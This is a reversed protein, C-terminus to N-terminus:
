WPAAVSQFFNGFSIQQTIIESADNPGLQTIGCAIRMGQTRTLDFVKYRFRVRQEYLYRDNNVMANLKQTTVVDGDTWGITDNFNSM